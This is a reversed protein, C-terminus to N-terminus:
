LLHVTLFHISADLYNEKLICILPATHEHTL